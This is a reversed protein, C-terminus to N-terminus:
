NSAVSVLLVNSSIKFKLTFLTVVLHTSTSPKNFQDPNGKTKFYILHGTIRNFSESGVHDSVDNVSDEVTM